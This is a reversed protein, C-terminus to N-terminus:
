QWPTMNALPKRQRAKPEQGPAALGVAAMIIPHWDSTMDFITGALQHNFNAFQRVHMGMAEVQVTLDAMSQGLDYFAYNVPVDTDQYAGLIVASADAAWDSYGMFCEKLKEFIPDNRMGVVFSWPQLNRASPAWRAAELISEMQQETLVHTPDFARPSWRQALLPTIQTM